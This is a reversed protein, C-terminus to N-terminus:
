NIFNVDIIFRQILLLDLCQCTNLRPLLQPYFLSFRKENVAQGREPSGSQELKHM